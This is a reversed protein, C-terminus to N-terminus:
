TYSVSLFTSFLEGKAHDIADDDDNDDDDDVKALIPITYGGM